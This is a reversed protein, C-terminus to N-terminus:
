FNELTAIVISPSKRTIEGIRHGIIVEIGKKESLDVIRQSVIGDFIIYKAGKLEESELQKALESVPVRILINFNEDLIVAELTNVLLPKLEKVKEALEPGINDPIEKKVQISPTQTASSLCEMIELPTLEEVERGPPARVVKDVRAVQMLEKLILDGGRDGDLFAIIKKSKSLEIVSQPIGTGEIGIVNEIGARLLNLVDARGEVLIITDSKDVAPGAPLKEKGYAIIKSKGMSESIDKLIKNSESIVKKSWERAIEKAREKIQKIKEARVDEISVLKFRASCPGVRDVSEVTAAILSTTEFDTSTPILVEGFTRDNKSELNIEIRGIKWTKQLENLDFEPGFLGETQGFIAGVVDAREVVGEVEFKLRILYKTPISM